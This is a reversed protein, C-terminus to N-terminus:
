WGGGRRSGGGFGGSRRSGGGFGGSSRSGGSWGGSRRSSSGSSSSSSGGSGWSGGWGGSRHSPRDDNLISGIVMGGIFEGLGDQNNRRNVRIQEEIIREAREAKERADRARDLSRQMDAETYIPGIQSYSSRADQLLAVGESRESLLRNARALAGEARSIAAHAREVEAAVQKRMGEIRQFHAYIEEYLRAAQQELATYREIADRLAATRAEEERQDIGQAATYAAQLNVQLGNLKDQSGAPIDRPHVSIFQVIKQVEATAIPQARKLQERLKNMAQVESRAGVLAEDALLNAERAQRVIVLWDPRELQTEARAQALLAEARALLKEPEKGIDPDNAAIFARGQAIDNEAAAIEDRASARATELDKLRKIIADILTHAAAIREEARDLDASAEIFEQREMSNRDAALEWLDQADDAAAEAESGNGRIDSWTSEAFEDVLDFAQWGEDIAAALAEGKQKLTELREDNARRRAPLGGGRIVGLERAKDAQDLLSGIGAAGVVPLATGAQRLLGEATGFSAVGADVRFGQAAAKEAGIRGASVGERIDNLRAVVGALEKIAASAAGAATIADAARREELLAIAREVLVEAPRRVAEPQTIDTGLANLREAVDALAKKANDVEGPAMQALKDLEARRAEAKALIDRAGSIDRVIQGYSQTVAEYEAQTPEKRLALKEGAAALQEQAGVFRQEVDGQLEALRRVEADAYSVRDFQAKEQAARLAQSMDTIAASAARRGEEAATRAAQLAQAIGRRKQYGRWAIPGVVLLLVVGLVGLVLPVFDVNVTNGENVITTGGSPVPPTAISRDIATLANVVGRTLNGSALGPNLQNLRITEANNNTLLAENWRDGYSIESYRPDFSVYILIADPEIANSVALDARQFRRLADDEGGSDILFVGVRAGRAVLAQAAETVMEQDLEGTEDVITVGNTQALAPRALTFALALLLLAGLRPWSWKLLTM